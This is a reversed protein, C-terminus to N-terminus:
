ARRHSRAERRPHISGPPGASSNAVTALTSGNMAWSGANRYTAPVEYLLDILADSSLNTAHGNPTYEIDGNVMLGEPQLPGDGFLFAKAENKGFDESLAARVETEAQPADALLRNSIDVFVAHERLTIERQGFTITSESLTQGEGVWQSNTGDSRTPYIVSPATTQRVSAVRRIPSFEVLDRVIESALEPPSLYGGEIDNSQTLARQEEASIAGGRSLYAAFARSELSPEEPNDQQTGPRNLRTEVAALRDTLGRLETAQQTRFQESASRLEEVAATAASLPDDERTEIPLASRTEIKTHITM